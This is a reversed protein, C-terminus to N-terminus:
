SRLIQKVYSNGTYDKIVMKKTNQPITEMERNMQKLMKNLDYNELTRLDEKTKGYFIVKKTTGINVIVSDQSYAANLMMCFAIFLLKKM